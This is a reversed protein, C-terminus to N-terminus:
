CQFMSCIGNAPHGLVLQARPPIAHGHINRSLARIPRGDYLHLYCLPYHRPPPFGTWHSSISCAYIAMASPFAAYQLHRYFRQRLATFLTTECYSGGTGMTVSFWSPTFRM